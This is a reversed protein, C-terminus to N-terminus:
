FNLFYEPISIIYKLNFTWRLVMKLPLTMMLLFLSSMVMYRAFGMRAFFKRFITMAMLPPLVMMYALVALIGPSERLLIYGFSALGSSGTPAKPLGTGIGYEWFYYSLDVNNLAAVKHADWHEYPAFLNWNPGRLFTGLIILTVWLALFGFQFVLYSFKRQAITYYGNGSKNFDLYPIAMLGAIVISPLVVGAYWPDFYVLMEQLGLFYWPAKSPNPTKVRNAFDELPAPLLLAWVIMFATVAVMCILETYVLDPWVLVKEDNLKELPPLGQELRDDNKVAQSTAVWTFFGLLFVLMVIPVNDPKTVIAAFNPNAMSLGMVLLALNLLSWAVLGKVFFRRCVFLVALLALTGSSYLIAGITGSFYRNVFDIFFQPMGPVWDANASAALPALITFGLAILVWILANRMDNRKRWLYLAAGANMMALVIYYAGLFGAMHELFDPDSSHQGLSAQSWFILQSLGHM